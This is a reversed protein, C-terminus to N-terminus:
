HKQANSQNLDPIGKGDLLESTFDLRKTWGSMGGIHFDTKERQDNTPRDDPKCATHFEELAPHRSCQTEDHNSAARPANAKKPRAEAPLTRQPPPKVETPQNLQWM